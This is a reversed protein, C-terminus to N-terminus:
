QNFSTAIANAVREQEQTLMGPFMPLSLVEYSVQETIPFSKKQYGLNAYVKQLHIPIPYYVM